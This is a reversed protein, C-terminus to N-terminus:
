INEKTEFQVNKQRKNKALCMVTSVKLSRDPREHQPTMSLGNGVWEEVKTPDPEGRRRAIHDTASVRGSGRRLHVM